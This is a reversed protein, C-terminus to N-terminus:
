AVLRHLDLVLSAPSVNLQAAQTAQQQAVHVTDDVRSLRAALLYEQAEGVSYGAYGSELAAYLTSAQGTDWTMITDGADAVLKIFDESFVECRWTNCLPVGNM